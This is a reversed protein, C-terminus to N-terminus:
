EKTGPSLNISLGKLELNIYSLLAYIFLVIALMELLEEITYILTYIINQKGNVYAQLGELMEFGLAGIVYMAGSFIFM